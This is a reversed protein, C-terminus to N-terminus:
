SPQKFLVAMVEYRYHSWVDFTIVNNEISTMRAPHSGETEEQAGTIPGASLRYGDPVTLTDTQWKGSDLRSSYDDGAVGTTWLFYNNTLPIISTYGITSDWGTLYFGDAATIKDGLVNAAYVNKYRGDASGIDYESSKDPYISATKIGRREQQIVASFVYFMSDSFISMFRDDAGSETPQYLYIGKKGNSEQTIEIKSIPIAAEGARWRYYSTDSDLAYIGNALKSFIEEYTSYLNFSHEYLANLDSISGVAVSSEEDYVTLEPGAYPIITAESPQFDSPYDAIYFKPVRKFNDITVDDSHVAYAQEIEPVKEILFCAKEGIPYIATDHDIDPGFDAYMPVKQKTVYLVEFSMGGSQAGSISASISVNITDGEAADISLCDWRDSGDGGESSTFSVSDSASGSRSIKGTFTMRGQRYHFSYVVVVRIGSADFNIPISISISNGSQYDLGYEQRACVVGGFWESYYDNSTAHPAWGINGFAVDFVYAFSYWNFYVSDDGAVHLSYYNTASTLSSIKRNYPVYASDLSSTIAEATVDKSTKMITGNEDSSEFMGTINANTLFAEYARFTGEMNLFFGRTGTPNSGDQNFGGGFIAGGLKIFNAFLNDIFANYTAFNAAFLNIVSQHTSTTSGQLVDYLSDQLVEWAVSAPTSGDAMKWESGTWYYPDRSGDANELILHDGVILDGETTDGPFQAADQYVGLYETEVKGERVGTVIFSKSLAINSITCSITISGLPVRGPVSIIISIDGEGAVYEWPIDIDVGPCSVEWFAPADTNYRLCTAVITQDDKTIGRSTLKFTQPNVVLDFSMAPTGTTCFYDWDNINFNWYKCWLYNLGSPREPVTTEWKGSNTIFATTGFVIASNGFALLDYGEDPPVTNTAAWQFFAIPNKGDAGTFQLVIWDSTSSTRVRVWIVFGEEQEPQESSWETSDNPADGPLLAAWEMQITEIAGEVVIDVYIEYTYGGASARCAVRNVGLTLQRKQLIITTDHESELEVGQLYWSPTANYKDFLNGAVSVVTKEDADNLETFRTRSADILFFDPELPEDPAPLEHSFDPVIISLEGFGEATYKYLGTDDSIERSVIRIHTDIGSINSESLSYVSGPELKEFSQFSYSYVAHKQRSMLAYYLTLADAGDEIYSASYTEPDDGVAGITGEDPRLYSVDAYVYGRIRGTGWFWGGKLTIKVHGGTQTAESVETRVSGYTDKGTSGKGYFGSLKIASGEDDTIASLDWLVDENFFTDRGATDHWINGGEHSNISKSYIQMDGASVYKNYKVVAGTKNQDSRAVTIGNRCAGLAGVVPLREIDGESSGHVIDATPYVIMKGNEDFRYDYVYEYLVTALVDDIYDGAKIEFRHLVASITPAEINSIGCLECLQHVISGSPASPNCIQISDWAKSFIYGKPPTDVYEAVDENVKRHLLETYDLVELSIDGVRTQEISASAYPRIVGTFLVTGSSDRVKAKILTEPTTMIVQLIDSGAVVLQCSSTQHKGEAGATVKLSFGDRRISFMTDGDPLSLLLSYPIGIGAM